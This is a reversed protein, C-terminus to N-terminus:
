RTVVVKHVAQTQTQAQAERVFYVGPSLGRVDNAGPHLDLVKRGSVDLLCSASSSARAALLLVGRVVTAGGSTMRVESEPTEAIAPKPDMKGWIRQTNYTKGGATGVWGQYVLFLQNGAGRTLAPHYQGGGQRVVPGSDFVIGASTVRAAYIDTSESSRGDEWVVLSNAGESVIAPHDQDVASTSIAIGATDLVVGAPTVRAGYIDHSTGSRGDTWAVLSNGGGLFIAPSSQSGAATSIAIGATDLVVGAPTVRAGYIDTSDGRRGDQWVVLYNDGDFVLTPSEQYGAATSIAIGTPDLVAGAPTVRAGYIDLYTRFRYDLVAWTALFNEGDFALTPSVRPYGVAATSIAIGAPDLVVGAPTVRAGRISSSDSEDRWVVMFDAGDFAVAPTGQNGASAAIAIGAPDLVSGGPTVRAAYVDRSGNREDQWAVLFNEGDFALAPSEQGAVVTSFAIGATDLVAGAPTVRAGYIDANSGNRGDTWAVVFNEGDSTLAPSEQSGAATSVAIGEPDLVVGAQTVRAGYVDYGYVDYGSNRDDQWVVMFNERGMAVAPYWKYNAATTSIAIGAPDLVVGAPTVRAGYIDWGSRADQWVALFNTGDFALSPRQQFSGATSIAIGATDLVTGAPTVRAGYIDSYHSTREDHWAVLFNAGEFALAPHYQGGAATSIAICATDLVNGAPTVRV